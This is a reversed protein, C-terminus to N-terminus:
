SHLRYEVYGLVVYLGLYLPALFMAYLALGFVTQVSLVGQAWGLGLWGVVVLALVVLPSVVRYRLFAAVPVAFVAVAVAAAVSLSAVVEPTLHAFFDGVSWRAVVLGGVVYLCLVGVGVAVGALSASELSRRERSTPAM